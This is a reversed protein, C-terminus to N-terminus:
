VSQFFEPELSQEEWDLHGTLIMCTRALCPNVLPVALGPIEEGVPDGGILLNDAGHHLSCRLFVSSLLAKWGVRTLLVSGATTESPCGTVLERRGTPIPAKGVIAMFGSVGVESGSSATLLISTM